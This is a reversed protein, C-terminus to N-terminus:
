RTSVSVHQAWRWLAVVAQGLSIGGDGPPVKRHTYVNMGARRLKEVALSLLMRNGWVGGSLVVDTIETQRSVIMVSAAIMEAVTQHFKWAVREPPSHDLIDALLEKLMAKVRIEGKDIAFSYREDQCFSSAHERYWEAKEGLLIAAEGEYSSELCFGLMASVGDFLRGASTVTPSPLHGNIQASLWSIWAKYSPFLEQCVKEWTDSEDKMAHALLSMGMMWPKKIAAEGGPLVLPEMHIAREFGLFDGTLIEFGWLSDDPGYGTGDLICGIVPAALQHEAMCSALHAHHHYVPIKWSISMRHLIEETILYAPHPDFGVVTPNGDMFGTLHAVAERWVALQQESDVDGIHQSIVAGNANLLCFTNKWEPGAGMVIPVSSLGNPLPYPFSEPVYGRSRRLLQLHQDVIQGVSDEVRICIERDHTVFADAIDLLQTRAEVNTRAISQGSRNGSTAVLFCRDQDFLLHHLPSYPLMVGLRTHCPALEHVPLLERGKRNPKILLILGQRGLLAERESPNLDFCSEVTEIDKIMIALPKRIRRKRKRLEAIVSSQTADCMLHFGGIGKVALIMGSRLAHDVHQLWHKSSADRENSLYFIQPGCDPCAITQAHFRRALPNHFEEECRQCLSFDSMTTHKRDYPLSHIISYRPGCTTCSTFPYTYFRSAPDHIEELCQSCVVLDAPFVSIKQGNNRSPQIVFREEGLPPIKEMHISSIKAPTRVETQLDHLFSQICAPDGEIEIVVGGQENRSCGTLGHKVATRYVFPRFGVGQVIGQVSLRVREM